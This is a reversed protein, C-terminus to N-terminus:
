QLSAMACLQRAAFELGQQASPPWWVEDHGLFRGGAAVLVVLEEVAESFAEQAEQAVKQAVEAVEFAVQVGGREM